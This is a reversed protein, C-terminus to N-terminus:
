FPGGGLRSSPAHGKGGTVSVCRLRRAMKFEVRRAATRQDFKPTARELIAISVPAESAEQFEGFSRAAIPLGYRNGLVLRRAHSRRASRLFLDGFTVFAIEAVVAPLMAPPSRTVPDAEESNNAADSSDQKKLRASAFCKKIGSFNRATMGPKGVVACPAM